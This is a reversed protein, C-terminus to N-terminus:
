DQDKVRGSARPPAPSQVEHRQEVRPTEARPTEV